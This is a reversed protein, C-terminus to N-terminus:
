RMQWFTLKEEDVSWYRFKFSLFINEKPSHFCSILLFWKIGNTPRSYNWLAVKWGSLKFGNTFTFFGINQQLTFIYLEKTHYLQSPKLSILFGNAAWIFAWWISSLWIIQSLIVNPLVRPSGMLFSMDLSVTKRFVQSQISWFPM